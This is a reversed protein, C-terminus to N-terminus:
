LSSLSCICSLLPYSHNLLSPHLHITMAAGQIRCDRLDAGGHSVSALPFLPPPVEQYCGLLFSALDAFAPWVRCGCSGPLGAQPLDSSSFVSSGFQASGVTGRELERQLWQRQHFQHPGPYPLTYSPSLPSPLHAQSSHHGRAGDPQPFENFYFLIFSLKWDQM